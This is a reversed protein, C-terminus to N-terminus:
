QAPIEGCAVPRRGLHSWAALSGYKARASDLVSTAVTISSTGSKDQGIIVAGLPTVVAGPAKACTGGHIHSVLKEGARGGNLTLAVETSDGKQTLVVTGTIRSRNKAALTVNVPAPPPPPTMAATSEAAAPKAAAEKKACALLGLMPVLWALRRTSLVTRM